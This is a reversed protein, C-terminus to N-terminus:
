SICHNFDKVVIDRLELDDNASQYLTWNLKEYNWRLTSLCASTSHDLISQTTIAVNLLIFTATEGDQVRQILQMVKLHQQQIKRRRPTIYGTTGTKTCTTIFSHVGTAKTPCHQPESGPASDEQIYGLSGPGCRHIGISTSRITM